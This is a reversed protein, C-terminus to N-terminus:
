DKPYFRRILRNGVENSGREHPAEPHCYYVKTRNGIRYLSKEMGIYDAFESGNDVTITKFIRYFSSGYRKEIRNLAKVVESATHEKLVELITYRTKRETLVLITKRNNLKGIVCDM